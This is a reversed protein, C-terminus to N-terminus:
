GGIKKIIEKAKLVANNIAEILDGILKEDREVRLIFAPLKPHYSVFDCWKKDTVYLQGQVQWKYISPLKNNMLYQIHTSHKPAKIEILGDKGVLGDPSAGVWEGCFFGGNSVDSHNLTYWLRAQPELDHGRQMWENTFSEPRDNTLREYVVNAIANKYGSTTEAGMIDKFTSATFKGMRLGFWEETNQEINHFTM